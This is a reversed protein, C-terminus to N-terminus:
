AEKGRELRRVEAVPPADQRDGEQPQGGGPPPPSVPRRPRGVWLEVVRIVGIVLVVLAFMGVIMGVMWVGMTNEDV